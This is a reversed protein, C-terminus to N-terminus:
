NKKVVHRWIAALLKSSDKPTRKFGNKRDVHTVGFRPGYGSLWELNDLLSWVYFGSVRVGDERVVDCLIKIYQNLYEQRAKDDIIKDLSMHQEFEVAFGCESIVIPINKDKCYKDWTYLLIKRFGWPVTHPHGEEGRMGIPKGDKVFTKDIEDMNFRPDGNPQVEQGTAWGTGYHNLSFFDASGRLLALEEQTLRPFDDGYKDWATTQTGLFIPDAFWGFDREIALKADKVARPDDNIPEVWESNLAISILGNQKQQFESRYLRVIDSHCLLINHGVRFFDRKSFGKVIGMSLLSPFIWPENFTLWKKVRDGFREFCLKAFSTYDAILERPDTALFSRYRKHLELPVDFHLITITPEIGADLLADILQNYYKIGEENISDNRGGNPVIRPWSVSFRYGSARYQQLLSVDQEWLRYSDCADDGTDQNAEQLHEDWISPGRGGATAGGEIQYSASSYGHVFDEPLVDKYAPDEAINRYTVM